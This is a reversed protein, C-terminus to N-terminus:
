GLIASHAITVASSKHRLILSIRSPKDVSSPSDATSSDVGKSPLSRDQERIRIERTYQGM